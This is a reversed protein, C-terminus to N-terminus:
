SRTYHSTMVYDKRPGTVTWEATWDPWASFDYRVLYVDPDCDHRGDPQEIGAEFDHFPRGDFFSIRFRAGDMRWLHAQEAEFAADGMHLTGSERYHLVAGDPAFHARGEFRSDPGGRRDLISRDLKWDGEFDGLRPTM